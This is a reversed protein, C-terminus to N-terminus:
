PYVVWGKELGGFPRTFEWKQRPKGEKSPNEEVYRIANEIMEEDDLFVKWRREAWPSPAREGPKASSALPHLDERRLQQTAEGKLLNSVYEIKYHHRAIVLHTHEPLIACAWITFGSKKCANSFGQGIARAQLGSFQVPPYQLAKKAEQRLREQQESLEKRELSKTARGFRLLEWAGVFDSWSGRPDNPLWFGYAGLIVHYGHVM